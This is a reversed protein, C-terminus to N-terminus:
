YTWLRPRVNDLHIFHSRKDNIGWGKINYHYALGLLRVQDAESLGSIDIDLARGLKHASRPSGGVAENHKECRYGSTVPMPKGFNRRLLDIHQMFKDDMGMQGCCPCALEEITFYQWRSDM